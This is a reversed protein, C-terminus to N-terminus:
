RINPRHTYEGYGALIKNKYEYESSSSPDYVDKLYYKSDSTADHLQLKSGLALSQGTGVPMTYDLQFIHNTTKDKNDSYRNTLDIYESSTGFNNTM